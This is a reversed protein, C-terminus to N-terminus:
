LYKTCHTLYPWNIYTPSWLICSLTLTSYSHDQNNNNNGGGALSFIFTRSILSESHKKLTRGWLM